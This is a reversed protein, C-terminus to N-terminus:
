RGILRAFMVKQDPCIAHGDLNQPMFGGIGIGGARGDDPGPIQAFDFARRGLCLQQAFGIGFGFEHQGAPEGFLGVDNGIQIVARRHHNDVGVIRRFQGGVDIARVHARDDVVVGKDAADGGLPRDVDGDAGHGAGGGDHVVQDAVVHRGHGVVDLAQHHGADKAVRKFEARRGGGRM